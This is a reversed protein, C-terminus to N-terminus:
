VILQFQFSEFSEFTHLLLSSYGLEVTTIIKAKAIGKSFFNHMNSLYVFMNLLITNSLSHSEGLQWIGLEGIAHM